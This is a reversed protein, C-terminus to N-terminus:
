HMLKDLIGILDLDDVVLSEIIDAESSELESGWCITIKVVQHRSGDGSNGAAESEGSLEVRIEPLKGDIQNGEWTEM